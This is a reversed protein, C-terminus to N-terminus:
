QTVMEVASRSETVMRTDVRTGTITVIDSGFGSGRDTAVQLRLLPARHRHRYPRWRHLDAKSISELRHGIGGENGVMNVEETIVTNLSISLLGFSDM